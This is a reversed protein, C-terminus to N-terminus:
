KGVVIARLWLRDGRPRGDSEIRLRVGDTLTYLGISLAYEGEALDAPLTLRSIQVFTDGPRLSASTLALRDQQTVIAGEASLVHTFQSLQPPLDGTVRWYAILDFSEGSRLSLASLEYGLFDVMGQFTVPVRAARGVKGVEPAWAVESDAAVDALRHDLVSLRGSRVIVGLQDALFDLDPEAASLFSAYAPLQYLTDVDTVDPFAYRAPGDVFIM